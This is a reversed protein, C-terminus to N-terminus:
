KSLFDELIDRWITHYHQIGGDRNSFEIIFTDTKLSYYHLENTNFTGQWSFILNNKNAMVRKLKEQALSPTLNEVWAKIIGEVFGQQKPSMETYRVGKRDKMHAEKGTQTMVDANSPHPGLLAKKQLEPSLDNFLM